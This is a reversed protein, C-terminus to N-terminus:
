FAPNSEILTVELKDLLGNSNQIAAPVDVSESFKCVIAGIHQHTWTFEKWTQHRQFFTELARANHTPDTAEDYLGTGSATYWRLGYLSVKFTRQYPIAPRSTFTWGNMSTASGSKPAITEPVQSGPCFGFTEM